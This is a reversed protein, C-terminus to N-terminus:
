TVQINDFIRRNLIIFRNISCLKTVNLVIMINNSGESDHYFDNQHISEVRRVQKHKRRGGRMRQAASEEEEEEEEVALGLAESQASSLGM